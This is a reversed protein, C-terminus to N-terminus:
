GRQSAIWRSRSDEHLGILAQQVRDRLVGVNHDGAPMHMPDIAKGIVIQVGRGAEPLSGKSKTGYISIPVITTDTDLALRAVGDRVQGVHDSRVLYGEPFLVVAQDKHLIERAVALAKDGQGRGIDVTFVGGTELMRENVKGFPGIGTRMMPRLLRKQALKAMWVPGDLMTAHTPALIVRGTTPLNEIGHIQITGRLKEGLAPGVRKLAHQLPFRTRRVSRASGPTLLAEALADPSIIRTAPEHILTDAAPQLQHIGSAATDIKTSTAILDSIIPSTDYRRAGPPLFKRTPTINQLGETAQALGSRADQLWSVVPHQADGTLAIAAGIETDLRKVGASLTQVSGRYRKADIIGSGRSFEEALNRLASSIHSVDGIRAVAPAAHGGIQLAEPAAARVVAGAAQISEGIALAMDDGNWVRPTGVVHWPIPDFRGITESCSARAAVIPM